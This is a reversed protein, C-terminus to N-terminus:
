LSRDINTIGFPSSSTSLLRRSLGPVFLQVRWLDACYVYAGVPLKYKGGYVYFTNPDADSGFAVADLRAGPRNGSSPVQVKGFSPSNDTDSGSPGM